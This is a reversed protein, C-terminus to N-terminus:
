NAYKRFEAGSLIKLCDACVTNGAWRFMLQKPKFRGCEDCDNGTQAYKLHKFCYATRFHYSVYKAEKPCHKCRIVKPMVQAIATM